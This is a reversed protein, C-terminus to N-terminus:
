ASELVMLKQIFAILVMEEQYIGFYTRQVDVM